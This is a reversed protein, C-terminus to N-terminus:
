LSKDDMDELFGNIEQVIGPLVGKEFPNQLGALDLLDLFTKSGGAKCLEVYSEWAKKRDSRSWLWYQFACTQALTYDIMYFPVVFIHMIRHWGGGQELYDDDHYTKFPMYTKELERWLTKRETKSMDPDQFIAHQFEDILCGYLILNLAGSLHSFKYKATDSGFFGEAYPWAFFEMSMSHIEASEMTPMHYEPVKFHRSMFMQFAHGAEHTLVDVDGKTGNFNAFIFPSDYEPLFTCYGGGAKGKKAELDMLERELMFRFFRATEEGMDEYMEKATQVLADKDGKPKPNGSKFELGLDYHYLKDLGLRQRKKEAFTKALPVLRKKVEDRFAAVDEPGYDIRGLRDYALPIFSDHGLKEAIRSRVKVLKDYLDDFQEENEQFFGSVAEYAKKRTARDPSQTFPTMQSLNRTEGEFEIEAAATLKNFTSALRNEEQLDEMIKDNFTRLSQEAKQFLLEGKKNKLQERFPSKALAQYFRNNLQSYVPGQQDFFDKEKDYFPDKTDVTHRIHALSSMTHFHKRLKNVTDISREQTEVDQANEFTELAQLFDKKFTEMDPRVYEYDKFKM